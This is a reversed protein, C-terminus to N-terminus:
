RHLHDPHAAGRLAANGLGAISASALLDSTVTDSWSTGLTGVDPEFTFGAVLQAASSEWTAVSLRQLISYSTEFGFYSFQLIQQVFLVLLDIHERSNM